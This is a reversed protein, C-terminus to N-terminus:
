DGAKERMADMMAKREDASLRGDHNADQRDFRKAALADLETAELFASGDADMRAFARDAMAGRGRAKAAASWEVASVRGDGDTDARMMRGRLATQFEVKGIGEAKAPAPAALAAVHLLAGPLALIALRRM